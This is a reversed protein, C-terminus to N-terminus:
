SCSITCSSLLFSKFILAACAERIANSKLKNAELTTSKIAFVSVTLGVSTALTTGM